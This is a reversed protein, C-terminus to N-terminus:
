GGSLVACPFPRSRGHGLAFLGHKDIQAIRVVPLGVGEGPSAPNSTETGVATPRAPLERSGGKGRGRHRRARGPIQFHICTDVFLNAGLLHTKRMCLHM